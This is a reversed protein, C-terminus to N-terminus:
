VSSPELTKQEILQEATRVDTILYNVLGAELVVRIAKVKASGGAVAIVKKRNKVMDELMEFGVSDVLRNLNVAEPTLDTGREDFPRNLIEGVPKSKLLNETDVMPDSLLRAFRDKRKPDCLGIGIIGVDLDRALDFMKKRKQEYAPHLRGNKMRLTDPLPQVGFVSSGEGWKGYLIGVITFPSQDIKWECQTEVTLQSVRVKSVRYPTLATVLDRMTAGSGIGIKLGSPPLLSEELHRAAAETLTRTFVPWGIEGPPQLIPEVVSDIRYLRSLELELSRNRPLNLHVSYIKARRAEAALRSVTSKEIGLERAIATQTQPKPAIYLRQIIEAALMERPKPLKRSPM